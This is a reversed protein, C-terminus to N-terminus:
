DEKESRSGRGQEYELLKGYESGLKINNVIIKRFLPSVRGYVRSLNYFNRFDSTSLLNINKATKISSVKFKDKMAAFDEELCIGSELYIGGDCDLTLEANLVVPEKRMSSLNIFEINKNKRVFDIVKRTQNFLMHSAKKDWFVGLAYNIQLREFGSNVLSLFSEFMNSVNEPMFVSISYYPLRSKKLYNFNSLMKAYYNIGNPSKRSSLQNKIEGDISFEVTFNHKRFFDVKEKTLEIGNSTLLFSVSKKNNLRAKNTYEVAKKLLSYKLLPEGGFFQVQLEDVNSTLLLDIGKFLIDRDMSATFKRVRCYKCRLQCNHTLLFVLRDPPLYIDEILKNERGPNLKIMRKYIMDRYDYYKGLFGEIEKASKSGPNRLLLNEKRFLLSFLFNDLYDLKRKYPSSLYSNIIFEVAKEM